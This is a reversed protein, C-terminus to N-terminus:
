WDYCTDIKSNQRLLANALLQHGIVDNRSQMGEMEVLVYVSRHINSYVPLGTHDNIFPTGELSLPQELGNRGIQVEPDDEDGSLTDQEEQAKLANQFRNFYHRIQIAPNQVDRMSQM